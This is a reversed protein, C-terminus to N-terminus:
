CEMAPRSSSGSGQQSSVLMSEMSERSSVRQQWCALGSNAGATTSCSNMAEWCHSRSSLCHGPTSLLATQWRWSLAMMSGSVLAMLWISVGTLRRQGQCRSCVEHTTIDLNSRSLDDHEGTDFVHDGGGSGRHDELCRETVCPVVNGILLPQEHHIKRIPLDQVFFVADKM